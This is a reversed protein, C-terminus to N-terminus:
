ASNEQQLYLSFKLLIYIYEKLVLFMLVKKILFTQEFPKVDIFGLCLILQELSVLRKIEKQAACLFSKFKKDFVDENIKVKGNKGIIYSSINTNVFYKKKTKKNKKSNFSPLMNSVSADGVGIFVVNRM